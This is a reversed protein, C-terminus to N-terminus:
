FPRFQAIAIGLLIGTAIRRFNNSAEIKLRQRLVDILCPLSLLTIFIFNNVFYGGQMRFLVEGCVGGIILGVCRWCLIFCFSGMHPAREYHENCLPVRGLKHLNIMLIRKMTDIILMNDM